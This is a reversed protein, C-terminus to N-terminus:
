RILGSSTIEWTLNNYNGPAWTNTLVYEEEDNDFKIDLFRIWQESGTNSNLFEQTTKHYSGGSPSLIEINWGQYYKGSQRDRTRGIIIELRSDNNLDFFQFANVQGFEGEGFPLEVYNSSNFTQGNGYIVIPPFFDNKPGEVNTYESGGAVLDLYGDNNIDKLAIVDKGFMVSKEIRTNDIEFNGYGNNILIPSLLKKERKFYDNVMNTTQNGDSLIIDLDGDNDFDGTTAGHFFGVLETYRKETFGGNGDSMLSVPYEGPLPAADYGHGVLFFDVFGDNNFDGFLINTGHVLGLFKKDNIPDFTFNGSCDQTLFSIYRRRDEGTYNDPKKIGNAGDFNYYIIDKYGDNNYDVYLSTRGQQSELYILNISNNLSFDIELLDVFPTKWDPVPKPSLYCDNIDTEQNDDSSSSSNEETTEESTEETVPDEVTVPIELTVQSAELLYEIELLDEKACSALFLVLGLLFRKYM